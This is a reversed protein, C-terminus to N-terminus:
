PDDPAPADPVQFQAASPVLALCNQLCVRAFDLTPIAPWEADPSEIDDSGKGAETGAEKGGGSAPQERVEEDGEEDWASEEMKSEAASALDLLGDLPDEPCAAEAEELVIRQSKGEGSRGHVVGSSSWAAEWSGSPLAAGAMAVLVEEVTPDEVKGREEEIGAGDGGKGKSPGAKDGAADDKAKAELRGRWAAIEERIADLSPQGPVSPHSSPPLAPTGLVHPSAVRATDGSAQEHLILSCEALRLWLRPRQRFQLAARRLFRYARVPRRCRLATVGANFMIECRPAPLLPLMGEGVSSATALPNTELVSTGPGEALSESDAGLPVGADKSVVASAGCHLARSTELESAACAELARQFILM